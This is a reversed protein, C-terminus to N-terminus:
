MMLNKVMNKEAAIGPIGLLASDLANWMLSGVGQLAGSKKESPITELDLGSSLQDFLSQGIQNTQQLTPSSTQQLNQQKERLDKLIQNTLNDAM